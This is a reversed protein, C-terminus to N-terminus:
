KAQLAGEYTGDILIFAIRAVQDTRNSWAHNTGRQVCVDGPRLTVESDDLVLVIEGEIVVGYDVTETRHMLPHPQSKELATTADPTGLASFYTAIKDPQSLEPIDPPIDAIRIRCGNAVPQMQHPRDMPDKDSSNIPVPMGQTEWVEYSRLEEQVPSTAYHPCHDDFVVVAKGAADHGTVIRRPPAKM